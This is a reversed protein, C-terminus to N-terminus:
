AEAPEDLAVHVIGCDAHDGIGPHGIYHNGYYLAIREKKLRKLEKKLFVMCIMLLVFMIGELFVETLTGMRSYSIPWLELLFLWPLAILILSAAYIIKGRM